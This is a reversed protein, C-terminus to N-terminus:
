NFVTVPITVSKPTSPTNDRVTVQTNSPSPTVGTIKLVAVTSDADAIEVTATANPGQAIVYPPTGGSVKVHQIGGIGVAVWTPVAALVNAPPPPPETPPGANKACSCFVLLVAALLLSAAGAAPDIVRASM